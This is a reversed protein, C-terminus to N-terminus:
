GHEKVDLLVDEFTDTLWEARAYRHKGNRLLGTMHRAYNLYHCLPVETRAPSDEPVDEDFRRLFFSAIRSLVWLLETDEQTVPIGEAASAGDPAAHVWAMKYFVNRDENMAGAFPVFELGEVQLAASDCGPTYLNVHGSFGSSPKAHDLRSDASLKGPGRNAVCLAPNVRITALRAPLHLNRLRDDGPYSYALMISQFAADIEAPHLLIPLGNGTDVPPVSIIECSARGLKRRLKSLSRFQARFNYGLSEMFGYLRHPEVDILHSTAPARKPLVDPSATDLIVRVIGDAVLRFDSDRGGIVGSYAFKSHLAGLKDKTIDSLEILVEVSSTDGDFTIAQHIQFATIEILRIEKGAALQRAAELATSIYGAAPFVIQGQVQHGELWPLERPILFNRWRLHHPASEPSEDGLLPVSPKRLRMRQSRRSEHWYKTQHNWQYSPLGKLLKFPDNGRGSVTIEYNNLDVTNNDLHSWLFGLCSSMAVVADKGRSLCGHYPIMRDISHQITESSPGKLAPHAGVELVLDFVGYDSLVTSLAQSFLVPNTQNDVWYTSDLKEAPSILSGGHVSSYWRCRETASPIMPKIDARLLSEIYPGACPLMHSSHYAQDVKLRRNFKKEDDLIVTLQEIADEDGSITVSSPSNCAAVCVRGAFWEDRCLETADDMSAGVALMAGKIDGNPSAAQRSHLGRYFAIVIADRATLYGSAYAAAIEGSSHGIVVDFQVNATRLLDVLLIQVATCLPQSISAEHVRSSSALLESKLSWSPRDAEPLQSLYSELNEVIQGALPSEEILSAGMRPYQAGQGTFVGLIKHGPDGTGSRAQARIGYTSTADELSAQIDTKLDEITRSSFSARYPFVSRHKRLTYALDSTDHTTTTLEDLHAVYAQLNDKLSTESMASFVYPTFSRLSSSGSPPIKRTGSSTLPDHSELIAHANTGGFGFSNCDALASCTSGICL